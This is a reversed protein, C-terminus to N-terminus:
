LISESRRRHRQNTSSSQSASDALSQLFDPCGARINERLKQFRTQARRACELQRLWLQRQKRAPPTQTQRAVAILRKYKQQEFIAREVGYPIPVGYEDIFEQDEIKRRLRDFERQSLKM